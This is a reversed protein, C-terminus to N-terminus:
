ERMTFNSGLGKLMIYIVFGLIAVMMVALAMVQTGTIM